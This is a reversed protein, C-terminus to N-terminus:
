LIGVEPTSFGSKWIPKSFRSIKRNKSNWSFSNSVSYLILGYESQSYSRQTFSIPQMSKKFFFDSFEFHAFFGYSLFSVINWFQGIIKVAYNDFNDYRYKQQCCTISVFRKLLEYSLFSVNNWFQGIIKNESDNRHCEWLQWQM